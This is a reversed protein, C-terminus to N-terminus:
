VRAEERFLPRPRYTDGVGITRQACDVELALPVFLIDHDPRLIHRHRMRRRGLLPLCLLFGGERLLPRNKTPRALYGHRSQIRRCRRARSSSALDSPPCPASQLRRISHRVQYRFFLPRRHRGPRPAVPAQARDRSRPSRRPSPPRDRRPGHGDVSCRRLHYLPHRREYFLSRSAPIPRM